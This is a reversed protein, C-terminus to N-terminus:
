VTKSRTPRFLKPRGLIRAVTWDGSRPSWNELHMNLNLRAAQSADVKCIGSISLRNKTSITKLQGGCEPLARRHFLANILNHHM